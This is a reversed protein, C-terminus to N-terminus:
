IVFFVDADHLNLCSASVDMDADAGTFAQIMREKGNPKYKRLCEQPLIETLQQLMQRLSMRASFRCECSYDAQPFILHIRYMGQERDM